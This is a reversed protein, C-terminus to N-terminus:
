HKFMLFSCVFTKDKLSLSDYDNGDFTMAIHKLLYQTRNLQTESDRSGLYRLDYRQTPGPGDARDPWGSTSLTRSRGASSVSM